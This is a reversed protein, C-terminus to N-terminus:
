KEKIELREIGHEILEDDWKKRFPEEKEFREKLKMKLIEEDSYAREFDRGYIRYFLGEWFCDEDYDDIDKQILEEFESTPFHQSYKEDYEIYKGFGFDRAFSFIYSEIEELKEDRSDEPTGCHISNAMWDGLYVLKMLDGYQEETLKIEM